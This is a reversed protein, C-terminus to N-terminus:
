SWALVLGVAFDWFWLLLCLLVSGLAGTGLGVVCVLLEYPLLVVNAVLAVTLFAKGLGVAGIAPCCLVALCCAIGMVTFAFSPLWKLHGLSSVRG